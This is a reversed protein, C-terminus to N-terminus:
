SAPAVAASAVVGCARGAVACAIAKARSSPLLVGHPSTLPLRECLPTPEVVEVVVEVRPYLPMARAVAVTLCTESRFPRTLARLADTRADAGPPVVPRTVRRTM